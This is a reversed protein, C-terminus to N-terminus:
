FLPNAPSKMGHLYCIATSLTPVLICRIRITVPQDITVPQSINSMVRFSTRNDFPFDDWVEYIGNAVLYEASVNGDWGIGTRVVLFPNMIKVPGIVVKNLQTTLDVTAKEMVQGLAPASYSGM